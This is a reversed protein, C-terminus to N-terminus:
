LSKKIKNPLEIWWKIFKDPNELYFLQTTIGIRFEGMNGVDYGCKIDNFKNM